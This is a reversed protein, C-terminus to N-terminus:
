PEPEAALRHDRAIHCLDIQRGGAYGAQDFRHFHDVGDVPYRENVEVLAVDHPVLQDLLDHLRVFFKRISGPGNPGMASNRMLMVSPRPRRTGTRPRARQSVRTAGDRARPRSEITRTDSARM